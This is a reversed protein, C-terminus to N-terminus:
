NTVNFTISHQKWQPLNRGNKFAQFWRHAQRIVREGEQEMGYGHNSVAKVSDICGEKTILFHVNVTYVGIPAGNQKAVNPNLKRLLYENWSKNGGPYNADAEIILLCGVSSYPEAIQSFAASSIFLLLGLTFPKYFQRMSNLHLLILFGYLPAALSQTNSCTPCKIVDQGYGFRM